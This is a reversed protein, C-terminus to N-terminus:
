ARRGARRERSPYQLDRGNHAGAARGPSVRIVNQDAALVVLASFSVVRVFPEPLEFRPRASEDRAEALLRMAPRSLYEVGDIISAEDAAIGAALVNVYRHAIGSLSQRVADRARHQIGAQDHAFIM